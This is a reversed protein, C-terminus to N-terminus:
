GKTSPPAGFNIGGQVNGGVVAVQSSIAKLQGVLASGSPKVAESQEVLATVQQLVEPDRGAGSDRLAKEAPKAFTEPDRIYDDIREALKPEAAGFKRAILAKLGDYGDKIAKEGITAGVLSLGSLVLTVPDM